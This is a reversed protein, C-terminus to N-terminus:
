AAVAKQQYLRGLDTNLKIQGREVLERLIWFTIAGTRNRYEPHNFTYNKLATWIPLALWFNYHNNESKPEGSRDPPMTDQRRSSHNLWPEIVQGDATLVGDEILNKEVVDRIWRSFHIHKNSIYLDLREALDDALYFNVQKSNQGQM